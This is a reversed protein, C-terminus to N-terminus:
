GESAWVSSRVTWESNPFRQKLEGAVSQLPTANHTQSYKAVDRWYLAEPAVSTDAHRDVVGAYLTEATAWDKKIAALRALAMELRARFENKLLYGEIRYREHGNSDLV